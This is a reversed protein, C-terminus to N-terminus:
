RNPEYYVRLSCNLFEMFVHPKKKILTKVNYSAFKSKTLGYPTKLIRILGYPTIQDLTENFTALIFWIPLTLTCFLGLYVKTILKDKPDFTLSAFQYKDRLIIAGFKRNMTLADRTELPFFSLM